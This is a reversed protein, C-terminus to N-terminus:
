RAPDFSRITAGDFAGARVTYSISAGCHDLSSSCRGELGTRGRPRRPGELRGRPPIPASPEGSASRACRATASPSREPTRCRRRQCDPRHHVRSHDSAEPVVVRHQQSDVAPTKKERKGSQDESRHPKTPRPRNAPVSRRSSDSGQQEPKSCRSSLLLLLVSSRM